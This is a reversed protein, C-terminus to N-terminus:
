ENLEIKFSWKKNEEPHLFMYKKTKKVIEMSDYFGNSPELACNYEGKFGGENKWIGLFPTEKLDYTLKLKGNNLIIGAKDIKSLLFFKETNKSSKPLFKNLRYGKYIPYTCINGANGLFKSDHVNMIKNINLLLESKEDIALLGHFTWFGIFNKTGRNEVYYEFIISNKKLSIKREFIYQFKISKVTCVISKNIIKCKWPISWLEGHDPLKEGLYEKFPYEGEEVNPFLEDIGSTDYKEFHDGYNPLSYESTPQFLIEFNQPKYVISSVKAGLNPIVCLKIFDNEIFLIEGVEDM